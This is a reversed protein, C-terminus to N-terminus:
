LGEKRDHKKSTSLITLVIRDGGGAPRAGHLRRVIREDVVGGVMAALENEGHVFFM